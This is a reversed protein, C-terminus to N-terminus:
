IQKKHLRNTKAVIKLSRIEAVESCREHQEVGYDMYFYPYDLEAEYFKLFLKYEQRKM